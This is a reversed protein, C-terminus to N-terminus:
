LLCAEPSPRTGDCRPETKNGRAPRRCVKRNMERHRVEPESRRDNISDGLNSHVANASAHASESDTPM